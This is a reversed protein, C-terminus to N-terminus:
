GGPPPRTRDPTNFRFATAPRGPRVGDGVVVGKAPQGAVGIRAAVEGGGVSNNKIKVKAGNCTVEVEAAKEAAPGPPKNPEARLQQGGLAFRYADVTPEADDTARTVPAGTPVPGTPTASPAPPTEAPGTRTPTPTPDTPESPETQCVVVPEPNSPEPDDPEPSGRTRAAGCGGGGVRGVEHCGGVPDLFMPLYQNPRCRRPNRRPSVSNRHQGPRAPRLGSAAASRVTFRGEASLLRCGADHSDVDGVVFAGGRFFVLLSDRGGPCQLPGPAGAMTLDAM